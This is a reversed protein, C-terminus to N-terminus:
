RSLLCDNSDINSQNSDQNRPLCEPQSPSPRPLEQGPIPMAPAFSRVVGLSIEGHAAPLDESMLDQEASPAREGRIPPSNLARLPANNIQTDPNGSASSIAAMSVGNEIFFVQVPPNEPSDRVSRHQKTLFWFIACHVLFVIWFSLFLKLRM